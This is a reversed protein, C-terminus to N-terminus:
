NDLKNVLEKLTKDISNIKFLLLFIFGGFLLFVLALNIFGWISALLM